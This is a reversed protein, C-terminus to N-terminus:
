WVGVLDLYIFLGCIKLQQRAVHQNYKNNHSNNEWLFYSSILVLFQVLVSVNLTTSTLASYIGQSNVPNDAASLPHVSAPSKSAGPIFPYHVM